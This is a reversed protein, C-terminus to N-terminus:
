IASFVISVTDIILGPLQQNASVIGEISPATAKVPRSYEGM